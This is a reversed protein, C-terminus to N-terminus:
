IDPITEDFEIAIGKSDTRVVKGKAKVPAKSSPLFFTTTLEQNVFLPTQTEIFIGGAGINQIYDRFYTDAGSCVSYITIRKRPHKRKEEQKCAQWEELKELFDRKEAESMESLLESLRAEVQDAGLPKDEIAM